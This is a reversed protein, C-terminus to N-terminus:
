PLPNYCTDLTWDGDVDGGFGNDKGGFTVSEGPQLVREYPTITHAGNSQNNTGCPFGLGGWPYRYAGPEYIQGDILFEDNVSGTVRLLAPVSFNNTV